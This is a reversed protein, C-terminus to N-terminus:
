ERVNLSSCKMHEKQKEFRWMGWERRVRLQHEQKKNQQPHLIVTFLGRHEGEYGGAKTNTARTNGTMKEM